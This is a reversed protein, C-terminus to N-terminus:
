IVVGMDEDSGEGEFPSSISVASRLSEAVGGSGGRLDVEGLRVVEVRVDDEAGAFFGIM